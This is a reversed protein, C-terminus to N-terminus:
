IALGYQHAGVEPDHAEDTITRLIEDPRANQKLLDFLKKERRSTLNLRSQYPV